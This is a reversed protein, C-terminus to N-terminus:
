RGGGLVAAGGFVVTAGGLGVSTWFAGNTLARKGATPTKNYSLRGLVATSWAAGAGLGSAVALGMMPSGGGERPTRVPTRDIPDLDAIPEPDAGVAVPEPEPPAVEPEPAFEPPLSGGPALVGSWAMKGDELLHVIHPADKPVKNGDSGDVMMSLGDPVVLSGNAVAPRGLAEEQMRFLKGGEPAIRGSLKGDPDIGFAARMSDASEDQQGSVFFRVAHVRHYAAALSPTVPEELCPVMIASTTSATLFGAEDLSAFALMAEDLQEDLADTSFNEDCDGAYAPLATILAMAVVGAWRTSSM